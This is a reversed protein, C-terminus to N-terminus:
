KFKKKSHMLATDKYTLSDSKFDYVISQELHEQAQKYLYEQEHATNILKQLQLSKELSARNNALQRNLMNVEDELKRISKYEPSNLITKEIYKQTKLLDTQATEHAILLNDVNFEKTKKDIFSNLEKHYIKIENNIDLEKNLFTTSFHNFISSPEVKHKSNQTFWRNFDNLHNKFNELTFRQSQIISDEKNGKKISIDVYQEDKFLDYFQFSFAFSYNELDPCQFILIFDSEVGKNTYNEGHGYYNKSKSKNLTLEKFDFGLNSRLEQIQNAYRKMPTIEQNM